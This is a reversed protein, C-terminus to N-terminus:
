RYTPGYGQRYDRGDTREGRLRQLELAQNKLDEYEAISIVMENPGIMVRPGPGDAEPGSEVIRERPPL